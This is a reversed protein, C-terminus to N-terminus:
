AVKRTVVRDLHVQVGVPLEPEFVTKDASELSSQCSLPLVTLISLDSCREDHVMQLLAQTFAVENLTDAKAVVHEFRRRIGAM